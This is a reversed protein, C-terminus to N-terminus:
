DGKKIGIKKLCNATQCVQELLEKYTIEIHETPDDGEWIIAVRDPYKEAYRDVCNYSVNLQGDEFWKIDVKNKSYTFNKIKTFKKNWHIREAQESWFSDNDLISKKYISDYESKNIKAESVWNKKIEM